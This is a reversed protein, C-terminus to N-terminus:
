IEVSQVGLIDEQLRLFDAKDFHRPMAIYLVIKVSSGEQRKLNIERVTIKRQELWDYLRVLDGKGDTLGVALETVQMKERREVGRLLVQAILMLATATIGPAYMGWGIAMGVGTTTWLGAATTLGVAGGRHVFIVGAGLFGIGAAISAAVRSVDVSVGAAGM